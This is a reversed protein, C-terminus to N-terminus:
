ECWLSRPCVWPAPQVYPRSVGATSAVQMQPGYPQPFQGGSLPHAAWQSGPANPPPTGNTLAVGISHGFLGAINALGGLTREKEAVSSQGQEVQSRLMTICQQQVQVAQHLQNANDTLEVVRREAAQARQESAQARKTCEELDATLKRVQARLEIAQRAPGSAKYTAVEVKLAAERVLAAEKEKRVAELLASLQGVAAAWSNEDDM